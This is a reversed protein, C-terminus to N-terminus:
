ENAGQLPADDEDVVVAFPQQCPLIAPATPTRTRADDMEPVATTVIWDLKTAQFPPPFLEPPPNVFAAWTIAAQPPTQLLVVYRFPAPTQVVGLEDLPTVLIVNLAGREPPVIVVVPVTPIDPAAPCIGFPAVPAKVAV